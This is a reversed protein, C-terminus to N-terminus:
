EGLVLRWQDQLKITFHKLLDLYPTFRGLVGQKRQPQPHLLGQFLWAWGQAPGTIVICPSLKKEARHNCHQTNM